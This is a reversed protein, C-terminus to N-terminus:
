RLKKPSRQHNPKLIVKKSVEQDVEIKLLEVKYGFGKLIKATNILNVRSFFPLYLDGVSDSIIAYTITFEKDKPKEKESFINKFKEPIKDIIKARFEPDTQILQGSVFGQSFLHSLVSSKGYMKVHILNKDINLLDCVEIQGYGGGHFIKNKDDLLCYKDSYIAAVSSNYNGEGGGSYNPLILNSKALEKFANDTKAVFDSNVKFWAGDNLIYKSGNFEIEAYLCKYVSWSKYVFNHDDDMCHVKVDHLLKLTIDKNIVSELFGRLNIDPYISKNGYKYSFGSVFEWPIIEPISLWLGEYNKKIFKEILISDLEHIIPSNNKVVNINNVWEFYKEDLDQDYNRKYLLLIDRLDNLDMRVSVSLSDAGAMTSGLVFNNPTGMIAKLMDQEVNLGFM